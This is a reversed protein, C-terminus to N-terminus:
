AGGISIILLTKEGGKRPLPLLVHKNKKKLPEEGKKRSNEKKPRFHNAERIGGGGRKSIMFPPFFYDEM